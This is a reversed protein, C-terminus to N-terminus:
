DQKPLTRGYEVLEQMKAGIAKADLGAVGASKEVGFGYRAVLRPSQGSSERILIPLTPNLQKVNSYNEKV